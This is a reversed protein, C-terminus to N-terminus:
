NFLLSFETNAVTEVAVLEVELVESDGSRDVKLSRIEPNTLTIKYANATAGGATGVQWTQPETPTTTRVLEAREFDIDGTDAYITAALAIERATQRSRKGTSSNSDPIEEVENSITLTADTFSRSAASIGWNHGVGKVAPASISAQNGYNITPFAVAGFSDITGRLNVTLVGVEGPTQTLEASEAICDKIVWYSGSLFLKATIIQASAPTYEWSNGAGGAGALGCSRLLADIGKAPTYDADAAPSSTGRGMLPFSISFTQVQESLFTSPQKTFSGSVNAKEKLERATAWEIGTEGVGSEPDGLVFGDAEGLSGSLAAITADATGAVSQVGFAAALQFTIEAM